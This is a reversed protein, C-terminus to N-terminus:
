GNSIISIMSIVRNLVTHDKKVTQYGNMAIERREDDHTLYYRCKETLEEKTEYVDLHTGIQLFEPIESQANTLLFGGSGLVDWIRQPLGTRIARMTTNINIRSTRFIRPMEVHSSVGGHCVVNKLEDTNSRTFLHVKYEPLEKALHNLLIVRDMHTLHYSLYHDTIHTIDMNHICYKSDPFDPDLKKFVEADKATLKEEILSLGPHPFQENILADFRERNAEPLALNAYHDKENYLSGIFSIDYDYNVDRLEGIEGDIREADVGLPLHFIGTPNEDKVSLYQARDFLFIRNCSNRISIDYIEDIPCDVSVSVYTVHLKECVMSIYPFYNISFVFLPRHTLILEAMTDVRRQASISKNVMEETDEIVDLGITKFARIYDPECISNYRHIIINM